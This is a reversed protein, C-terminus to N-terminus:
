VASYYELIRRENGTLSEEGYQSVKELLINVIDEKGSIVLDELIKNYQLLFNEYLDFNSERLHVLKKRITSNCPAVTKDKIRKLEQKIEIYDSSM